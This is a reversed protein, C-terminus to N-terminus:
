DNKVIVYTNWTAAGLGVGGLIIYKTDGKYREDMLNVIYFLGLKFLVSSIVVQACGEGYIPNGEGLGAVCVGYSTTLVDASQGVIAFDRASFSSCSSLILVWPIVVGNRLNGLLKRLKM